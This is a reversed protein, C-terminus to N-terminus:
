HWTEQQRSSLDITASLHKVPFFFGLAFAAAIVERESHVGFKKYIIECTKDVTGSSIHLKEAITKRDIHCCLLDLVEKQRPTLTIPQNAPPPYERQFYAAAELGYIISACSLAIRQARALPLVPEDSQTPDPGVLLKGYHRENLQVPLAFVAPGSFPITQVPRYQQLLLKM